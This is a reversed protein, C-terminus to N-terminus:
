FTYSNSSDGVNNSCAGSNCDRNVDRELSEHRAYTKPKPAMDSSAEKTASLPNSMTISSKAIEQLVRADLLNFFMRTM